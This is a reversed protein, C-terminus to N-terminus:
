SRGPHQGPRLAPRKRRPAGPRDERAPVYWPRTGAGATKLCRRRTVLCRARPPPNNSTRRPVGGGEHTRPGWSVVRLERLAAVEFTEGDEVGGGPTIWFIRPRRPDAPDVLTHDEIKFLLVRGEPDLVVLRATPRVIMRDGGNPQALGNTLDIKRRGKPNSRPLRISNTSNQLLPAPDRHRLRGGDEMIATDLRLARLFPPRSPHYPLSLLPIGSNRSTSM